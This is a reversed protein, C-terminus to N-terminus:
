GARARLDRLYAQLILSIHKPKEDAAAPAPPEGGSGVAPDPRNPAGPVAGKAATV